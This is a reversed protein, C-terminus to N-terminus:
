SSQLYPRFKDDVADSQKGFWLLLDHQRQILRLREPEEQANRIREHGQQASKLEVGQKYFHDIFGSIDDSSKFLFQAHRTERLMAVLSDPTTTGSSMTDAVFRKMADYVAIRRDFLAIRLHTKGLSHQGWAFGATTAVLILTLLANALPFWFTFWFPMTSPAEALCM